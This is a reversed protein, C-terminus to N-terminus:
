YLICVRKNGYLWVKEGKNERGRMKCSAVQMVIMLWYEDFFFGCEHMGFLSEGFLEGM